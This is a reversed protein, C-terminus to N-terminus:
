TLKITFKTGVGVESEVSISGGLAEVQNRTIYLGIGQSDNNRHFTQYMGFVKEGHRELDIGVGTDEFTIYTHGDLEKSECKIVAQREPDRYKLANTLLNHFISELYAPLYLVFPCQTFDSIITADALSINSQLANVINTFLLDFEILSKEKDVDAEFKVIENLHEVTTNLSTSITKIHSFVEQRDEASDTEMHLNVMFQLNTAYSRLNHSVIYTFNQLRENKLSVLDLSSKLGSEVKKRRDIDQIIGKICVCNGFDDIDAVAKMKVWIENEKTTKIKLDLDFPRGLQICADMAAAIITHYEAEFFQLLKSLNIPQQRFELIAFAEENLTLKNTAIDIEWVGLKGLVNAAATRSKIAKAELASVKSEHINIFTGTINADGDKQITGQFWQFGEKTLLRINVTDWNGVANLFKKKDKHYLLNDIFNAYSCEIEGPLYGLLKYFGMSWKVGKTNIDFEWLGINANNVLRVINTTDVDDFINSKLLSM